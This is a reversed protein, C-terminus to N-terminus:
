RFWLFSTKWLISLILPTIEGLISSSVLLQYIKGWFCFKKPLKQACDIKFYLEQVKEPKPWHTETQTETERFWNSYPKPKSRFWFLPKGRESLDKWVTM